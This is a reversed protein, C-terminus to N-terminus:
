ERRLPDAAEAEIKPAAAVRRTLEALHGQAGHHCVRSGREVPQARLFPHTAIADPKESQAQSRDNGLHDNGVFANSRQREPCGNRARALDKRAVETSRRPAVEGAGRQERPQGGRLRECDELYEQETGGGPDPSTCVEEGCHPCLYFGMRMRADYRLALPPRADRRM